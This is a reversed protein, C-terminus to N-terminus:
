PRPRCRQLHPDHQSAAANDTYLTVGAATTGVQAFTIGDTSRQILFGTEVGAATDTWALNVQTSSVAVASLGTPATAIAPTTVSAVTSTPSNGAASTALIRYIYATGSAATTCDTHLDTATATATTGVQTFNVGDTSRKSSSVPKSEDFKGAPMISVTTANVAAATVNTPAAPPASVAVPILEFWNFDAIARGNGNSDM